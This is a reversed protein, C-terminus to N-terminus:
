RKKGSNTLFAMRAQLPAKGNPSKRTADYDEKFSVDKDIDSVEKDSLKETIGSLIEEIARERSESM